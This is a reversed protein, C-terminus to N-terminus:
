KRIISVLNSLGMNIKTTHITYNKFKKELEKFLDTLESKKYWGTFDNFLLSLLINASATMSSVEIDSPTIFFGKRAIRAMKDITKMRLEPKMFHFINIGTVWDYSQDKFDLSDDNFDGVLLNIKDSVGAIKNEKKGMEISFINKDVGTYKINEPLKTLLTRLFNGNGCGVDLVSDNPAIHYQVLADCILVSFNNSVKPQFNRSMGSETLSELSQDPKFTIPSKLIAELYFTTVQYMALLEKAPSNVSFLSGLGTLIYGDKEKKVASIGEMFYLWKELKEPDYGKKKAIDSIKVPNDTSLLDFIGALYGASILLGKWTESITEQVTSINKKMDESM